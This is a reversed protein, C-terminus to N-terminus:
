IDPIDQGQKWYSRAVKYGAIFGLFFAVVVGFWWFGFLYIPLILILTATILTLPKGIRDECFWIVIRRWRSLHLDSNYDTM